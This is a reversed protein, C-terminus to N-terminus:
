GFSGVFAATKPFIYFLLDSYFILLFLIQIMIWRALSWLSGALSKIKTKEILSGVSFQTLLFLIAGDVLRVLSLQAKGNGNLNLPIQDHHCNEKQNYALHFRM